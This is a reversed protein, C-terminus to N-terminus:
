EAKEAETKGERAETKMGRVAETLQVNGTDM